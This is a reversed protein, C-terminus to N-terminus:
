GGYHLADIPQMKAAKNAPYLGFGLGIIFCFVVSLLVVGLDLSFTMSLSSVVVGVVKLIIWSLSIGIACGLMCLVVAEILFQQLIMGRTAGIAKRIGIERTRETVTVLMINMIGIGGVILSIAAIGGLLITLTSTVSSTAEEMASTNTVTFADDDNNFRETLLSTIVAEAVEMTTESSVYFSTVDSSVTTSLRMLSTYPIYVTINESGFMSSISNDKDELIGVVTYKTGDLSIEAGLCDTYGVLETATTENIVCVYTHSNIDATKIFRGLLISLGQIDYYSPTIGYVTATSSTSGYKATTSSEGSATIYGIGDKDSWEKLDDLSIPNGKDDSVSVTLMDNGLDSITDTVTSTAGNVLSVLVVLSLVGIIIGLMTLFARMKNGAISKIAMKFSQLMTNYFNEM